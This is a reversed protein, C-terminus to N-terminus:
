GLATWICHGPGAASRRSTRRCCSDLVYMCVYMCTLFPKRSGPVPRCVLETALVTLAGEILQRQSLSAGARVQGLGLDHLLRGATEEVSVAPPSPPRVRYGFRLADGIDCVLAAAHECLARVARMSKLRSYEDRGRGLGLRRVGAAAVPRRRGQMGGRVVEEEEALGPGEEAPDTELAPGAEEDEDAPQSGPREPKAAAGPDTDKDKDKDAGRSLLTLFASIYRM